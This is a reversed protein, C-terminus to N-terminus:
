SHQSISNFLGLPTNIPTFSLPNTGPTVLCGWLLPVKSPFEPSSRWTWETETRTRMPEKSKWHWCPLHSWCATDTMHSPPSSCRHWRKKWGYCPSRGAWTHLHTATVGCRDWTSASTQLCSCVCSLIPTTPVRCVVFGPVSSMLILVANVDEQLAWWPTKEANLWMEGSMTWLLSTLQWSSSTDIVYSYRLQKYSHCFLELILNGVSLSLIM